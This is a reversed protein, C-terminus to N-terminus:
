YRSLSSANKEMQKARRLVVRKPCDFRFFLFNEKNGDVRLICWGPASLCLQVLKRELGSKEIRRETVYYREMESASFIKYKKSHIFEEVDCALITDM